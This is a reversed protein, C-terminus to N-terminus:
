VMLTQHRAQLIFLFHCLMALLQVSFPESFCICSQDRHISRPDPMGRINVEASDIPTVRCSWCQGTSAAPPQTRKTTQHDREVLPVSMGTTLTPRYRASSTGCM